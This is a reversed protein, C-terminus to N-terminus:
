QHLDLQAEFSEFNTDIAKLNSRWWLGVGTKKLHPRKRLLSLPIKVASSLGNQHM